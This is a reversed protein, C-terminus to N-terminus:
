LLFLVVTRVLACHINWGCAVDLTFHDIDNVVVASYNCVVM